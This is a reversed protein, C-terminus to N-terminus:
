NVEKLAIDVCYIKISILGRVVLVLTLGLINWGKFFSTPVAVQPGLEPCSKGVDLSSQIVVHQPSSSERHVFLSTTKGLYKVRQNITEQLSLIIVFKTHLVVHHGAANWITM